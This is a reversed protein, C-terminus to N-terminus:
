GWCQKKTIAVAKLVLLESRGWFQHKPQTEADAGCALSPIGGEIVLEHNKQGWFVM